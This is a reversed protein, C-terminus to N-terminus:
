APRVRFGHRVIFLVVKQKDPRCGTVCCLFALTNLYPVVWWRVEFVLTLVNSAM